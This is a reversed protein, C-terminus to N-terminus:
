DRLLAEQCIAGNRTQLNALSPESQLYQQLRGQKQARAVGLVQQKTSLQLVMRSCICSCYADLVFPTNLVPRNQPNARQATQCAPYCSGYIDAKDSASLGQAHKELSFLMVAFVAVCRYSMDRWRISLSYKREAALNTNDYRRTGCNVRCRVRM